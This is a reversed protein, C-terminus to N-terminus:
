VMLNWNCTNRNCCNCVESEEAYYEIVAHREFSVALVNRPSNLLLDSNPFRYTACSPTCITFCHLCESFADDFWNDSIACACVSHVSKVGRYFPDFSCAVFGQSNTCAAQPCRWRREKASKTAHLGNSLHTDGFCCKNILFGFWLWCLSENGRLHLILANDCSRLWTFHISWCRSCRLCVLSNYCEWTTRFSSKRCIIAIQMRKSSCVTWKRRLCINLCLMLKCFFKNELKSLLGGSRIFNPGISTDSTNRPVIQEMKILSSEDRDPPHVTPIEALEHQIVIGYMVCM